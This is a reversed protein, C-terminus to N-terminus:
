CKARMLANRSKVHFFEAFKLSRTIYKVCDRHQSCRIKGTIKRIHLAINKYLSFSLAIRSKM